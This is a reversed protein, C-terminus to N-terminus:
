EFNIVVTAYEDPELIYSTAELIERESHRITSLSRRIYTKTFIKRTQERISLAGATNKKIHIALEDLNITAGLNKSNFYTRSLRTILSKLNILETDTLTRNPNLKLTLDFVVRSAPVAYARVGTSSISDLRNQVARLINQTTEQEPGLVVVGVTGIGYYGEIIRTDLVGPITLASLQAKTQNTTALTGYYQSIRYRYQTDSEKDRGNLISYFNIVKLNQYGSIATYDHSIITSAGVNSERGSAVAQISAYTINEAANCTLAQTLKYSIQKGLDNQNPETRVITGVPLTFDSGTNLDGFTGSEVYFALNQETNLVEAFLENLRPVGKQLGLQDLADGTAQSLQRASYLTLSEQRAQYLQDSFADILAQVKSDADFLNLNTRQRVKNQFAKLYELQSKKEPALAM